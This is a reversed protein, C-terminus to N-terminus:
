HCVSERWLVSGVNGLSIEGRRVGDAKTESQVEGDEVVLDQVRGIACAMQSLLGKIVGNRLQIRQRLLAVTVAGQDHLQQPVVQGQPGRRVAVLALASTGSLGLGLLLLSGGSGLVLSLLGLGPFRLRIILAQHWNPLPLRECKKRSTTRSTAKKIEGPPQTPGACSPRRESLSTQTPRRLKINPQRSRLFPASHFKERKSNDRNGSWCTEIHNSLLKGLRHDEYLEKYNIVSTQIM